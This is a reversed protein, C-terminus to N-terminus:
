APTSKTRRPARGSSIPGASPTTAPRVGRAPLADLLQDLKVRTEPAFTVEFVPDDTRFIQPLSRQAYSAALERPDVGEERAIEEVEDMSVAVKSDPEILLHNEALFRAFLMRHWHEYAIEQVLRRITQTSNPSRVDGLQRGRARLRRRLDRQAEDMSDFPKTEGVALAHLAEEAGKVGAVRAAVVAKELLRRHNSSLPPM